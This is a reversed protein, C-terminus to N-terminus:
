TRATKLGESIAAATRQSQLGADLKTIPTASGTSPPWVAAQGRGQSNAIAASRCIACPRV